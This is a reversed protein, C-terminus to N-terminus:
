IISRGIYRGACIWRMTLLFVFSHKQQPAKLDIEIVPSLGELSQKKKVLLNLGLAVLGEGRLDEVLVALVEGIVGDKSDLLFQSNLKHRALAVRLSRQLQLIVNSERLGLNAALTGIFM